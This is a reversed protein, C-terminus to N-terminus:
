FPPTARFTQPAGSGPHVVTLRSAHLCLRTVTSRWPEPAYLDDGIIVHGIAKLHLRLQHSRGTRPMLEIRAIPLRPDADPHVLGVDLDGVEGRSTVRWRTLSPKGHVHDVM